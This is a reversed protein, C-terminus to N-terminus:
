VEERNPELKYLWNATKVLDEKDAKGNAVLLIANNLANLWKINDQKEDFMKEIRQEKQDLKSGGNPLPDTSLAEAKTPRTFHRINKYPYKENKPNPKEEYEIAWTDGIQVNLGKFENYPDTAVGKWDSFFSYYVGKEDKISYKGEKQEIGSITITKTM